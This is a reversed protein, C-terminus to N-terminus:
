VKLPVVLKSEGQRGEKWLSVKIGTDERRNAIIKADAKLVSRLASASVNAYKLYSLGAKRWYSM